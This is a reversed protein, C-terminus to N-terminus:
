LPPRCQYLSQRRRVISNRLGLKVISFTRVTRVSLFSRAGSVQSVLADKRLKPQDLNPSIQNLYKDYLSINLSRSRRRHLGDSPTLRPSPPQTISVDSSTVSDESARSDASLTRGRTMARLSAFSDTRRASHQDSQLQTTVIGLAFVKTDLDQDLQTETIGPGLRLVEALYSADDLQPLTTFPENLSAPRQVPLSLM